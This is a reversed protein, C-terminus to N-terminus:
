GVLLSILIHTQRGDNVHIFYIGNASPTSLPIDQYGKVTTTQQEQQLKGQADFWRIYLNEDGPSLYRLQLNTGSGDNGLLQLNDSLQPSPQPYARVILAREEASLAEDDVTGGLMWLRLKMAQGQSFQNTLVANETFRLTSGAHLDVDIFPEPPRTDDCEAINLVADVLLTSGPALVVRSGACLALM